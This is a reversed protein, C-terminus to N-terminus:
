GFDIPRPYLDLSYTSCSSDESSPHIKVIYSIGGTLKFWVKNTRLLQAAAVVAGCIKRYDAVRDNIGVCASESYVLVFPFALLSSKDTEM